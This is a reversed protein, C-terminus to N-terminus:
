DGSWLTGFLEALKTDISSLEADLCRGGSNTTIDRLVPTACDAEGVAVM